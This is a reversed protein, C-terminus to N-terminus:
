YSLMTLFCTQYLYACLFNVKEFVIWRDDQWAQRMRIKSQHVTFEKCSGLLRVLYCGGDLVKLVTAIKWSGVDLVEAVDGVVWNEVSRVPPPCPRIAKRSVRDEFVENEMSASRNYMVNYTHGNGSIIEACRWAGLPVEKKSLVEVKSGKKFRMPSIIFSSSLKFGTVAM